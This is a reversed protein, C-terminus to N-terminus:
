GSMFPPLQMILLIILEDKSFCASVNRPSFSDKGVHLKWLFMLFMVSLSHQVSLRLCLAQHWKSLHHGPVAESSLLRNQM